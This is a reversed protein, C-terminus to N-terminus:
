KFLKCYNCSDDAILEQTQQETIATVISLKKNAFYDVMQNKKNEYIPLKIKQGPSLKDTISLNNDLAVNVIAEADGYEQIALDFISQNNIVTVEKM